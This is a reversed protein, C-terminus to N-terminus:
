IQAAIELARRVPLVDHMRIYAAGNQLAIVSAAITAPLRDAPPLNEPGALFSKRSPSLYVPAIKTLEGLRRIVEFSYEPKASIFHGMGPDIVIKDAAIGAQKAAEVRAQLFTAIDSVVDDYDREAVTTRPSNDKAYMLVVQAGAEAMVPLMDTDGRGATVDNVMHAGAATAQKAVEAKYTDASLKADPYEKLIGKVVPIVRQLEEELAVNESGPGTSEGGIDIIDAGEALLEGARTIAQDLGNFKGGDFYSDPTVNLVGVIQVAKM